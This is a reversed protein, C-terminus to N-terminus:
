GGALELIREWTTEPVPMVSLRNGKRLLAFDGLEAAHERLEALSLMRKFRKKLRVDVLYWRPADPDSKPDHYKSLPDFQTPDPYGERVVQMIGVIGPPECNSHYFLALDGKRMQDRLMNRAQYNRVGDWPETKKPRKALDEIGFVSPESKMLWYNM